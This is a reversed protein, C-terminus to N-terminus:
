ARMGMLNSEAKLTLSYFLKDELSEKVHDQIM